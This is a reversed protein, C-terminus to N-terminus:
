MCRRGQLGLRPDAERWVIVLHDGGLWGWGLEARILERWKTEECQETDLWILWSSALSEREHCNVCKRSEYSQEGDCQARDAGLRITIMLHPQILFLWLLLTPVPHCLFVFVRRYKASKQKSVSVNHCMTEPNSLNHGLFTLRDQCLFTSFLYYVRRELLLERSLKWIWVSRQELSIISTM